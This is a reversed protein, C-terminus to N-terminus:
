DEDKEEKGEKSKKMETKTVKGTADMVVERKTKGDSILFEYKVTSGATIKETKLVKGKGAEKTLAKSVEEPLASVPLTEEIEICTGDEQYALDRNVKGEVSEIEYTVKGKEVESSAGKITANPYAKHFADLVASPLKKPSIKKEQAQSIALACIMLIFLATLTRAFQSHLQKM